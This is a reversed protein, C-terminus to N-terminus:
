AETATLIFDGLEVSAGAPVRVRRPSVVETVDGGSVVWVGNTSDLDRVWLGSDDIEFAAHTKSVSSTPDNVTLLEAGPWEARAAPNRGILLQRTVTHTTGDPLSLSWTVAPRASTVTMEIPTEVLAAPPAVTPPAMGPVMPVFVIEDKERPREVRPPAKITSPDFIGPPLTIFGDGDGVHM